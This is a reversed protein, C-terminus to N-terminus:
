RDFTIRCEKLHSEMLYKDCFYSKQCNICKYAIVKANRIKSDSNGFPDLHWHEEENHEKLEEFSGFAKNCKENKHNHHSSNIHYARGSYSNFIKDCFDCKLNELSKERNTITNRNLSQPPLTQFDKSSYSLPSSRQDLYYM